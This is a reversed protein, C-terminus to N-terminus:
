HVELDQQKPTVVAWGLAMGGGAAGDAGPSGIGLGRLTSMLDVWDLTPECVSSALQGM